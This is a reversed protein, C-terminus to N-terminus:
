HPSVKRLSRSGDFARCLTPKEIVQRATDRYAHYILKGLPWLDNRRRAAEFAQDTRRQSRKLNDWVLPAPNEMTSIMLLMLLLRSIRGNGDRFPHIWCIKYYVRALELWFRPEKEDLDVIRPAQKENLDAEFQIMLPEILMSNPTEFNGSGVVIDDRRRYRGAWEFLRGFVRRHLESILLCDLPQTAPLDLAYETTRDLTEVTAFDIEEVTRLGLLNEKVLGEGTHRFMGEINHHVVEIEDRQYNRFSGDRHMVLLHGNEREDICEGFTLSGCYVIDAVQAWRASKVGGPQGMKLFKPNEWYRPLRDREAKDMRMLVDRHIKGIVRSVPHQVFLVERGRPHVHIKCPQWESSTM